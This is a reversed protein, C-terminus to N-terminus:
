GETIGKLGNSLRLVASAKLLKPPRKTTPGTRHVAPHKADRGEAGCVCNTGGWGVGHHGFVAGTMALCGRTPM